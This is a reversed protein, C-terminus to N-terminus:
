EVQYPPSLRWRQVTTGEIREVIGRDELLNLTSRVNPEEGRNMLGHLERPSLGILKADALAEVIPRQLTGSELADWVTVPDEQSTTGTRTSSSTATGRRVGAKPYTNPTRWLRGL